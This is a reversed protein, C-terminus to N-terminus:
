QSKSVCCLLNPLTPRGCLHQLQAYVVSNERKKREKGERANKNEAPPSVDSLDVYKNTPIHMIREKTSKVGVKLCRYGAM